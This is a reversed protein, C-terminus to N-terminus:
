AWKTTNIDVLKEFMTLTWGECFFGHLVGM